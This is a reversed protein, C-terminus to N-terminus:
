RQRGRKQSYMAEDALVFLQEATSDPGSLAVGVAASIRIASTGAQFPSTFCAEVREAIRAAQDADCHACVLVFEDGGLRALTDGTRVIRELRSAVQVLVEDGTAHGLEDNVQKFGDLDVFLLAVPGDNSVAQRAHDVAATRNALGTLHDHGALYALRHELQKHRTINIHSVVAGGTPLGAVQLLFWRDEQPSSCPYELEYFPREGRAVAAIAAGTELEGAERCVALYDAGVGCSDNGGNLMQFLDWATNTALIRGGQDIIATEAHLARFAAVECANCPEDVAGM